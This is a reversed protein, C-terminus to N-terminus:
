ANPKEREPRRSPCDSPCHALRAAARRGRQMRKERCSVAGPVSVHKEREQRERDEVVLRERALLVAIGAAIVVLGGFFVAAFEAGHLERGSIEPGAVRLGAAALVLVAGVTM